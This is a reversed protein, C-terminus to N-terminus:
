STGPWGSRIAQDVAADAEAEFAPHTGAPADDPPVWDHIEDVTRTAERCERSSRRIEDATPKSM